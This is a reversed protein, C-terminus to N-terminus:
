LDYLLYYGNVCFKIHTNLAYFVHLEIILNEFYIIINIKNLLTITKLQLWNQLQIKDEKKKLKKFKKKNGDM